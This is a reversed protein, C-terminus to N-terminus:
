LMRSTNTIILYLLQAKAVSLSYNIIWKSLRVNTMRGSNSIVFYKEQLANPYLFESIVCCIWSQMIDMTM